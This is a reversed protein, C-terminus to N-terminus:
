RDRDDEDSPQTLPPGECKPGDDNCQCGAMKKCTRKCSHDPHAADAVQIVDCSTPLAALCKIYAERTLSTDECKKSGVEAAESVMKPCHCNHYSGIRCIWRDEPDPTRPKPKQALAGVLVLAAFAWRLKRM